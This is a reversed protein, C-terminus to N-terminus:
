VDAGEEDETPPLVYYVGFFAFDRGSRVLETEFFKLARPAIEDYEENPKGSIEIIETDWTHNPEGVYMEVKRM